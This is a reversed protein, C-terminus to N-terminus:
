AAPMKHFAIAIRNLANMHAVAYTIDTIQKDSFQAKMADYDADSVRKGHLRTVSDAWALAAREKDSFFPTDRWVTLANLKRADIGAKVADKWHLDVCYPCGNIQSVRLYLMQILTDELGCGAIYKYQDLYSKFGDPSAARYDLRAM